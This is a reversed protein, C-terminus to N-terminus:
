TIEVILILWIWINLVKKMLIVFKVVTFVLLLDIMLRLSFMDILCLCLLFTIIKKGDRSFTVSLFSFVSNQKKPKEEDNSM